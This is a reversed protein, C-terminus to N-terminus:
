VLMSLPIKLLALESFYCDVPLCTVENSCMIGIRLWGTKRKLAAHKESFCCNSIKYDKM